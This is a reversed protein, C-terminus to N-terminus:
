AEDAADRHQRLSLRSSGHESPCERVSAWGVLGGIMARM